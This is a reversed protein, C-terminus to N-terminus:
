LIDFEDWLIRRSLNNPSYDNDKWRGKIGASRKLYSNRRNQDMHKLYDDYHINGFHVYKPQPYDLRLYSSPKPVVDHKCSVFLFFLTTGLVCFFIRFQKQWNIM